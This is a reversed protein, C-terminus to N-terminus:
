VVAATAGRVRGACRAVIDIARDIEDATTERSLSFRVGGHALEDPLGMAGLVASPELSGSSCAAGASACLGHESMTIVLAEAELRPFAINTTNPLRPAPEVGAPLTDRGVVAAEPVRAKVGAEFRDRLDAVARANAPDALWDRALEAAVGFGAIGPTNETGGRAGSEQSGHLRAPLRLGRRTWLAGVGKPGHFKHPAFALADIAFASVDTPAKGVRQTGDCIFYAGAERAMAGITEVPQVIGTENNAWLTCVVAVRGDLADRLADLDMVGAPTVPVLRLDAFGQEALRAALRRVASHEANSIVIADRGRARGAELLERIAWDLSETGGSTFAIERPKAGILAAVSMRAREVMARAEQGPRHVSSPNHWRSRLADLMAEVVPEAPRTTANHDLCIM